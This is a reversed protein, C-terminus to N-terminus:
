RDFNSLCVVLEGWAKAAGERIESWAEKSSSAVEDLEKRLAERKSLLETYQVDWKEKAVGRLDNAKSEMEALREDLTALKKQMSKQFEEKEQRFLKAASKGAEGLEKAVDRPTVKEDPAGRPTSTPGCGLFTMVALALVFISRM